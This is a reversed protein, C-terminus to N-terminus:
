DVGHLKNEDELNFMDEHPEWNRTEVRPRKILLEEIQERECPFLAKVHKNIPENWCDECLFLENENAFSSSNCWPCRVIWRGHNVCAELEMSEDVEIKDPM